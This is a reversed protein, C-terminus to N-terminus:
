AGAGTNTGPPNDGVFPQWSSLNTQITSEAATYAAASDGGQAIANCASLAAADAVNQLDRRVLYVMSGDIALAALPLFLFFLLIAVFAAAQGAESERLKMPATKSDM